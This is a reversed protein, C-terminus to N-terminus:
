PSQESLAGLHPVERTPFHVLVAVQLGNEPCVGVELLPTVHHKNEFDLLMRKVEDEIFGADTRLENLPDSM